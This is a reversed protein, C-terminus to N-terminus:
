VFDVDNKIHLAEGIMLHRNVVLVNRFSGGQWLHSKSPFVEYSKHQICGNQKPNLFGDARILPSAMEEAPPDVVPWAHPRGM